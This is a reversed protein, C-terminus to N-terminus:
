QLYLIIITKTLRKKQILATNLGGSIIVNAFSFFVTVISVVGYESPDLLRAIIISVILSIAQAIIREAFKWVAGSVVKKKINQEDMSDGRESLAKM